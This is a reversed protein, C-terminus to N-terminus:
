AGFVIAGNSRKTAKGQMQDPITWELWQQVEDPEGIIRFKLVRSQSGQKRLKARLERRDPSLVYILDERRILSFSGRCFM